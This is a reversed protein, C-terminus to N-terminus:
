HAAGSELRIGFALGPSVVWTNYYEVRTFAEIYIAHGPSFSLMDVSAHARVGLSPSLLDSTSTVREIALFGARLQAGLRVVGYPLEALMGAHAGYTALGFESQGRLGELTFYGAAQKRAGLALFLEGARFPVGHISAYSGQAAVKGSWATRERRARKVRAPETSDAAPPTALALLLAPMM